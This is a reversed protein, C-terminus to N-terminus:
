DARTRICRLTDIEKLATRKSKNQVIIYQLNFKYSLFLGQSKQIVEDQKLVSNGGFRWNGLFWQRHIRWGVRRWGWQQSMWSRGCRWWRVWTVRCWSSSRGPSLVSTKETINHLLCSILYRRHFLTIQDFRIEIYLGAGWGGKRLCCYGPFGWVGWWTYDPLFSQGPQM